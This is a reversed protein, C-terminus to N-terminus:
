TWLARWHKVIVNMVTNEFFRDKISFDKFFPEPLLANTLGAHPVADFKSTHAKFNVRIGM